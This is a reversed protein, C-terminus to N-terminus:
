KRYLKRVILQFLNKFFPFKYNYLLDTAITFEAFTMSCPTFLDFTFKRNFYERTRAVFSMEKSDLCPYSIALKEAEALYTQM